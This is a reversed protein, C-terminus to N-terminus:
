AEIRRAVLGLDRPRKTNGKRLLGNAIAHAVAVGEADFVAKGEVVGKRVAVSIQKRGKPDYEIRYLFGTGAKGEGEQGLEYMFVQGAPSEEGAAAVEWAAKEDELRLLCSAGWRQSVCLM